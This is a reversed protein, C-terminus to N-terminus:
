KCALLNSPGVLWVITFTKRFRFLYLSAWCGMIHFSRLLDWFIFRSTYFFPRGRRCLSDSACCILLLSVFYLFSFKSLFAAALTGSSIAFSFLFPIYSIFLFPFSFNSPSPAWHSIIKCGRASVCDLASFYCLPASLSLLLLLCRILFLFLYCVCSVISNLRSHYWM